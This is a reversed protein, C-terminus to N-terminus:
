DPRFDVVTLASIQGGGFVAGFLGLLKPRDELRTVEAVAPVSTLHSRLCRLRSSSLDLPSISLVSVFIGAAGCGAFARAFILM